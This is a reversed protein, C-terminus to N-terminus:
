DSRVWQVPDLRKKEQWIEFHVEPNGPDLRGIEQSQEVADGRKVFIEALNSYVTYYRGHQIIVTNKYGPIFQTGAVKGRFVARVGPKEQSRIDIGNNTLKVSKFRPHNRVGFPRVVERSAVPWPLQGRLEAFGKSQAADESVEAMEASTLSEPSRAKKRKALMEKRIVQEILQSLERHAKEQEALAGALRQEDSQLSVLLRNKQQFEKEMTAKQTRVEALLTDKKQRDIVLQDAKEQLTSQTELILNAQRQRYKEYQRIYQWRQFAENLSRASFLFQLYSQSLKHRLAIRLLEQYEKKLRSLDNRLADLVQNTRAISIDAYQVEEELTQILANRQNISRRLILFRNLTAERTERTQSLEQTTKEIDRLLAKRRAELDSRSEQGMVSLAVM